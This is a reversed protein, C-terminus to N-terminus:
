RMVDISQHAQVLGMFQSLQELTVRRSRGIKVFHLDGQDMLRYLQARSLSLLEAVEKVTYALKPTQNQM